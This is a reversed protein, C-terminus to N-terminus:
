RGLNIVDSLVEDSTTLVRASAQFGRQALIMQTFEHALDVNSRELSGAHIRLGEESRAAGLLAQGSNTSAAWLNSGERMMGQPNTFRAVAIRGLPREVGNSFLGHLVGETDVQFDLLEGPGFGDQEAFIQTDADLLTLGAPSGIGQAGLSVTVPSATGNGFDIRLGAPVSADSGDYVLGRLSGDANWEIRGSGGEVVVGSGDLAATWTAANEGLLRTIFIQLSHAQGLSDYLTVVQTVTTADRAARTTTMKMAVDFNVRPDGEAGSAQMSLFPISGATGSADSTRVEIQGTSSLEVVAPESGDVGGLAEEIRAMLDAVTSSATVQFEAEVAQGAVQAAIRVTDGDQLMAEGGSVIDRLLTAQTVLSGSADVLTTSRQIQGAPQSDASFNGGLDIRQTVGPPELANVPLQVASLESAFSKSVADYAYGQVVMGHTASVLRGLTDLRFAGARSYFTNTGDGLVFFGDGELALDSALGTAELAGQTFVPDVSGFRSGTGVQLASRGGTSGNAPVASRLTQSLAEEFTVRGAKFGVTNVNALNNGIVDLMGTHNALGSLASYFSRMM